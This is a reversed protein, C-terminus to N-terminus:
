STSTARRAGGVPGALGPLRPAVAETVVDIGGALRELAARLPGKWRGDPVDPCEATWRLSATTAAGRRGSASGSRRSAAQGDPEAVAAPSASSTSRGARRGDDPRSSGSSSCTASRSTTATCSATPPSSSRAAARRRPAAGRWDRRSGSARSATPTPPRARARVLRVGSLDGDYFAVAISGATAWTSGTRGARTSTGAEAQWPALITHRRRRGRRRAAPADGPRRGDRAAVDGTAPRGFRCRSTASGGAIETRRDALSALPLISHHFRSPSAREAARRDGRPSGATPSRTARRALWAPWRRRRPGVLHPRPQRARREPPLVRRQDARELRPVARGLPRGPRRRTFPDVRFPQYFHAHVVLRGRSMQRPYRDRPRAPRRPPATAPSPSSRASRSGARSAPPSRDAAVLAAPGVGQYVREFGCESNSVTEIPGVVRGRGPESDDDRGRRGVWDNGQGIADIAEATGTGDHATASAARGRVLGGPQRRRRAAHAVVRARAAGRDAADGVTPPGDVSSPRADPACGAAASASRRAHRRAPQGRATAARAVAVLRAAGRADTSGRVRWRRVDGLEAAPRTRAVADPTVDPALFRVLGSRREHRRLAPARRPGAEKVMVVDHISAPAGGAVIPAEANPDRARRARPADRPVGGAAPAAVAGLAHRVRRPHGLRRHGAGEALSSRSSRGPARRPPGRRRGDLDLDRTEAVRLTGLRAHRGPGRGRHPARVDRAAHARHLHRRVPRALLLREVPGPLPPGHARTAPRGTPCRRSRTAVDPADAQPPRQDRPVQGPLQALVGGRLWRAEPRTARGRRRPPRAAFSSPERRAAPGVRGDRRVLRDPRLGPRDAAARELWASPTITTLWDANAELAEFFRDVWRGEGWCHEWTTPWAGFKEGDDGMM